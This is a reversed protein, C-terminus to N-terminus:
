DGSRDFLIHYSSFLAEISIITVTIKGAKLCQRIGLTQSGGTEVESGYGGVLSLHTALCEQLFDDSTQIDFTLLYFKFNFFFIKCVFWTQRLILASQASFLSKSLYMWCPRCSRMRTPVMLSTATMKQTLNLKLVWNVALFSPLIQLFCTMIKLSHFLSPQRILTLVIGSQM